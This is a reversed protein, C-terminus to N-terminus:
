DEEVQAIAEVAEYPLFWGKVPSGGLKQTDNFLVGSMRKLVEEIQAKERAVIPCKDALTTLCVFLGRGERKKTVWSHHSKDGSGELLEQELDVAGIEILANLLTITATSNSGKIRELNKGMISHIKSKAGTEPSQADLSFVDNNLNFRSRIMRNVALILAYDEMARYEGPFLANLEKQAKDREAKWNEKIYPQLAELFGIVVQGRQHVETKNKWEEYAERAGGIELHEKKAKIEIIRSKMAPNKWPSRNYTFVFTSRFYNKHVSNGQNREGQTQTTTKKYYSLAKSEFESLKDRFTGREEENAEDLYYFAGSLHSLERVWGKKNASQLSIGETEMGFAELITAIRDTKGTGKDGSIALFPFGVGNEKFLPVFLSAVAYTLVLGAEMPYAMCQLAIFAKVLQLREEPSSLSKAKNTFVNTGLPIVDEKGISYSGIPKQTMLKGKDDVGWHPTIFCGSELHYGAYDIRTAEPVTRNRLLNEILPKWQKSEARFVVEASELLLTRQVRCFNPLEKFNNDKRTDESHL